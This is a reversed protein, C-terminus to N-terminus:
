RSLLPIFHGLTRLNQQYLAACSYDADSVTMYVSREEYKVRSCLQSIDHLGTNFLVLRRQNPNEELISELRSTVNSLMQVM